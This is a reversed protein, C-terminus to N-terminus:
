ADAALPALTAILSAVLAECGNGAEDCDAMLYDVDDQEAIYRLLAVAGALTAPPTTLLAVTAKREAELMKECHLDAAAAEPNTPPIQKPQYWREPEIAEYADNAASYKAWAARHEEILAFIPDDTAAKVSVPVAVAAAVGTLVARRSTTKTSLM